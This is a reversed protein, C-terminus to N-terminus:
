FVQHGSIWTFFRLAAGASIGLIILTVALWLSLGYLMTIVDPSKNHSNM